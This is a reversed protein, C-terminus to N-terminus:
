RSRWVTRHRLALLEDVLPGLDLRNVRLVTDVLDAPIGGVGHVAGLMAGCIAAVTDTDGGLEAALRLAAAPDDGLVEALAFAAVVSEQSAVSTGIVQSVADPVADADLARMWQRAWRIRAAIEGGATWHGRHAGVAAAREGADLAEALGAGDIGTSM